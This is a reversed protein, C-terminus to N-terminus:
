GPAAAPKEKLGQTLWGRLLLAGFCGVLGILSLILWMAAPSGWYGVEGAALRTGIGDPCWRVLLHGSFWSAVGKALYWPLLSLGLYTGEQGQPAIAATYEYLKPSWIIEGVSLVVMCAISMLYHAQAIDASAWRYPIALFLLSLASVMAGYVLMSFLRFRNVLPIFLIIGVVILIPNIAQLTGMAANEGITRLWYKPMLLYLYAFVARAGLILAILVILRWLAAERVVAVAIRLPSKRERAPKEAPGPTEARAPEASETALQGENRIMLFTVGCCLLGA